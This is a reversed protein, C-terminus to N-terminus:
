TGRTWNRITGYSVKFQKAIQKMPTGAKRMRKAEKVQAASLKPAQGFKHGRERMQRM